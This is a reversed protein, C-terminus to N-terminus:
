PKLIGTEPVLTVRVYNDTRLYKRAADRLMPASLSNILTEGTLIQRPDWGYRDSGALQGLWYGNQKIATERDRRQAEAVKAVDTAAPGTRRLSDIVAFVARTLEDAREPASGFDISLSYQPRPDRDLGASVDVSYTGGLEERLSERLEIEMVDALSSLVYRTQRDFRAPGTFVLATRSKPEAGRVVTRTVVGTPPAIVIDRPRDVRGHAPLAGLWRQVLPLLTDPTFSGVFVFTFDGADAFRDRFFRYSTGLNMEDLLAPTLPRARPNHQALTVQLTDSFAANPSLGRNAISARLRQMLAAYAASDQRPATVYLYVLQLLTELDRPSASGSFGEERDSVFPGVRVAQGALAKELEVRGFRGVGGASVVLAATSAAIFTSDAALSTGGPSYATMLVEDAKFDTPKAIVRVGNALRWETVGLEPIRRTSTVAAPPPTREVLPGAGVSDTYATLPQRGISDFVALLAAESPVSGPKDPANVLVVRNTDVLWERALRNVEPLGIGPLLTRYLMYEYAVGPSPEDELFSSVYEGAYAASVTKEREAYAREIGRLMERKERELETPTFGFREVRAAETLLAQLGRLVGGDRVAAGMEYASSNRVFGGLSSSAGIFPADPRQVIEDLRNDLMRNYLAEVLGRRYDGVTRTDRDPQKWVVSVSTGTAEPDTAIAVLTERNPPVPAEPRPREGPPNRLPGFHRVILQEVRAPDFDGVAVVGMLDPRYWDAYFRRLARPDFTELVQRDGIPLRVAYRSGRFLIPLQKDRMRAGAGQGGRWEEIVVGREKEIETSDFTVAHAWDELIDLGRELTAATDTPVMLMYVTEDFGTSANLDAGFRMGISELYHVLEQKAFHATGNFAMHEVFHALGRQDDDELVSGADVVLRLEARGEPKGNRRVWYRLGNPLRGTRVLPDAPLPTSLPPASDAAAGRTAAAQARLEAGLPPLALLASLPLAAGRLAARMSRAFM